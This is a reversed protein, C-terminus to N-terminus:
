PACSDVDSARTHPRWLRARVPSAPAHTPTRHAASDDNFGGALSCRLRARTPSPLKHNNTASTASPHLLGSCSGEGSSAAGTAIVGGRGGRYRERYSNIRQKPKGSGGAHHFAVAVGEGRISNKLFTVIVPQGLLVSFYFFSYVMSLIVWKQQDHRFFSSGV